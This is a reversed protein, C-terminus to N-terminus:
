LPYEPRQPIPKYLFQPQDPDFRDFGFIFPQRCELESIDTNFSRGLTARSLGIV